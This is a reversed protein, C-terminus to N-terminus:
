ILFKSTTCKCDKEAALWVELWEKKLVDGLLGDWQKAYGYEEGKLSINKYPVFMYKNRIRDDFGQVEYILHALLRVSEKEENGNSIIREMVYRVKERVPTLLTTIYEYVFFRDHYPTNEFADVFYKQIVPIRLELHTELYNLFWEPKDIRNTDRNTEFHYIFRTNFTQSLSSFIWLSEPYTPTSEKLSASQLMSIQSILSKITSMILPSSPNDSAIKDFNAEHLTDKLSTELKEYISKIIYDLRQVPEDIKSQLDSSPDSKNSITLFSERSVKISSSLELTSTVSAEM